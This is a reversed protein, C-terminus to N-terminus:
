KSEVQNTHSEQAIDLLKKKKYGITEVGREPLFHNLLNLSMSLFDLLMM